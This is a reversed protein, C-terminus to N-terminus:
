WFSPREVAAAKAEEAARAHSCTVCNCIRSHRNKDGSAKEAALDVLFEEYTRQWLPRALNQVNSLGPQGSPEAPQAVGRANHTMAVKSM